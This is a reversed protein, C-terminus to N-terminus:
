ICNRVDNYDLRIIRDGGNRETVFSELPAIPNCFLVAIITEVITCCFYHIYYYSFSREVFENLGEETMPSEVPYHDWLGWVGYVSLELGHISYLVTVIKM